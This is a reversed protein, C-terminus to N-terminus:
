RGMIRRHPVGALWTTILKRPTRLPDPPDGPHAPQRVPRHARRLVHRRGPGRRRPPPDPAAPPTDPDVDFSDERYVGRAGATRFGTIGGATLAAVLAPSAVLEDLRGALADPPWSLEVVLVDDVEETWDWAPDPEVIHRLPQTM